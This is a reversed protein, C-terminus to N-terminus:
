KISYSCIEAIPHKSGVSGIRVVVLVRAFPILSAAKLIREFSYCNDLKVFLLHFVKADEVQKTKHNNSIVIQNEGIGQFPSVAALGMFM